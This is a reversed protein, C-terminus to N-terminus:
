TQSRPERTKTELAARVRARSAMVPLATPPRTALPGGCSFQRDLFQRSIVGLADENSEISFIARPFAWPLSYRQGSSRRACVKRRWGM